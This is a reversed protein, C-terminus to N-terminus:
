RRARAGSAVRAARTTTGDARGFLTFWRADVSRHLEDRDVGLRRAEVVLTEVDSSLLKRREDATARPARAVITGIGPQSILLGDRILEAVVKQATNPNIKLAESMERVSPFADGEALVGGLIAKTAAYVVQRYPSAGARLSISFPLM